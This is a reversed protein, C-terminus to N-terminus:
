GPPTAVDKLSSLSQNGNLDKVLIQVKYAADAKLGDVVLEHDYDPAKAPEAQDKELENDENLVRVEGQTVKDTEWTVDIKGPGLLNVEFRVFKPPEKDNKDASMYNPLFTHFSLGVTNEYQGSDNQGTMANLSLNKNIDYGLGFQSQFDSIGTGQDRLMGLNTQVSLRPDLYKQLQFKFVSLVVGTLTNGGAEPVQGSIPNSPNSNPNSGLANQSLNQQVNVDIGGIVQGLPRLLTTIKNSVYLDIAELAGQTLANGTNQQYAQQL